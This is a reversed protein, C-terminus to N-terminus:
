ASGGASKRAEIEKIQDRVRAALEYDEASIAKKLENRLEIL